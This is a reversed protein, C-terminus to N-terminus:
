HGRRVEKFLEVLNSVMEERSVEVKPESKGRNAVGEEAVRGRPSLPLRENSDETDEARGTGDEGQPVGEELEDTDLVLINEPRHREMIACFDELDVEDDHAHFEAQASSFPDM